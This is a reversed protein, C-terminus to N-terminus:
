VAGDRFSNHSMVPWFFTDPIPTYVGTVYGGVQSPSKFGMACFGRGAYLQLRLRITVVQSTFVTLATMVTPIRSRCFTAEECCSGEQVQKSSARSPGVVWLDRGAGLAARFLERFGNAEISFRSVFTTLAFASFFTCSTLRFFGVFFAM